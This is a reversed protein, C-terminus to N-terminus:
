ELQHKSTTLSCSVLACSYKAVGGKGSAEVMHGLM